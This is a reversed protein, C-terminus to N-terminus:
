PKGGKGGIIGGPRKEEGDGSDEKQEDKKRGEAGGPASPAQGQVAQMVMRMLAAEDLPEGSEVATIIKEIAGSLVEHFAIIARADDPALPANLEFKWDDGARVANLSPSMRAPGFLVLALNPTVSAHDGDLVDVKLEPSGVGKLTAIIQDSKAPDLKAAITKTLADIQDFTLNIKGREDDGLAAIHEPNFTRLASEVDGGQIAGKLKNYLRTVQSKADGGTAGSDASRGSSGAAGGTPPKAPHYGSLDQLIGADAVGRAVPV